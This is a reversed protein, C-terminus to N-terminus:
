RRVMPLDRGRRIGAIQGRHFETHAMYSIVYAYIPSEGEWEVPSKYITRFEEDDIADVAREAAAFARRAYDLVAEKGPLRLTAAVKNDMEMGTEGWGLVSSDLEWRAALAEQAWIQQVPGLKRGLSPTMTPIKAQLYDAWRALHWLNWAISHSTPTPKWVFQEETIEEIMNLVWGHRRGYGSKLGEVVMDGM